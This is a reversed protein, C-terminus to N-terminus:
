QLREVLLTKWTLGRPHLVYLTIQLPSATLFRSTNCIHTNSQCYAFATNVIKHNNERQIKTSKFLIHSKNTQKNTQIHVTCNIHLQWTEKVSLIHFNTRPKANVHINSEIYVKMVNWAVANPKNNNHVPNKPTLHLNFVWYNWLSVVLSALPCEFM